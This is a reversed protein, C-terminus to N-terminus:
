KKCEAINSVLKVIEPYSKSTTRLVSWYRAGGRWASGEQGAIRGDRDLWRDLIRIGCSLNKYPDHLEQADSLGCKYGQSSEISLQLLGRSIVYNGKSDKFSEQYQVEPKFNSEYRVMASILFAWVDKRQEYSLGAYKPCFTEADSPVVDLINKGLSDMTQLVHLTWDKGDSPRKAEWLPATRQTGSSPPPTSPPPNTPTSPPPTPNAPPTQPTEGGPTNGPPPNQPQESSPPAVPDPFKAGLSWANLSLLLIASFVLNTKLLNKKM